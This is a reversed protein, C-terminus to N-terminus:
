MFMATMPQFTSSVAFKYVVMEADANRSTTWTFNSSQSGTASLPKVITRATTVETSPRIWEWSNTASVTAGLTGSGQYMAIALARTTTNTAGAGTTLATVATGTNSDTVDVSATYGSDRIILVQLTTVAPALTSTWTLTTETGDAVKSYIRMATGASTGKDLTFGTAPTITGTGNSSNGYGVVILDGSTTAFPLTVSISSGSSTTSAQWLIYPEGTAASFTVNLNNSVNTSNTAFLKRPVVSTIDQFTCYDVSQPAGYFHLFTSTGNTDSKLLIRGDGAQMSAGTLTVTAANSSSETFSDAGFTKTALNADFQIGTGNDLINNRLQVQYLKGLIANSGAAESGLELTSTSDFIATGASLTVTTGIQTWSSPMSANDPAQYFTTTGSTQARTVRVWYATGNTFTGATSATVSLSDAGTSSIWFTMTKNNMTLRYSQTSASGWKAALRYSTSASYNDLSMRVRIDIDGTISIAASDPTSIYNGPVGGPMYIYGNNQGSGTWSKIINTSNSQLLFGRGSGVNVSEFTNSSTVALAGTSNAVTYTLKNYTYGGGQFTRTSASATSFVIESTGMNVTPSGSSITWPSGSLVTLNITSSSCNLSRTLTSSSAFASCTVTYGATNFTGTNHTISHGTTYASALTYTGGPANITTSMNTGTFTKGASDFTFSGRGALVWNVTNGFSNTMGSSLTLSGYFTQGLGTTWTLTGSYNTFNVNKGVRPMDLTVAASSTAFTVDDQPLPVRSTWRAATSWNGATGDYQQSAATTFTIGSNGGCDGSLGSVASLNWSGAGAGTIDRFDSNTVSVTAANITGATGPTETQVLVRNISSNGDCTFTGTCTVTTGAAITLADTKNAQGTRTINYWTSGGNMVSAGGGNFTFSAGNMNVGGMSLTPSQASTFSATNATMTLSGTTAMSMASGNRRLTITSSGLTITRTGSASSLIGIDLNYNATDFTGNTITLTEQGTVNAMTLADSLVYSSGSGNVTINPMSKGGTAITQQTGSTSLLNITGVGTLTITASSSISLAVNGSGATGDGINLNSTTAAFAVTGSAQVTVSRGLATTSAPITVTASSPIIVDDAATPQVGGVWAGNTNWNNSGINAIIAM